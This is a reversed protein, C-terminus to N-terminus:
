YNVDVVIDNAGLSTLWKQAARTCHLNKGPPQGRDASAIFRTGVVRAIFQREQLKNGSNYPGLEM